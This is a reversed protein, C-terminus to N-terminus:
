YKRTQKDKGIVSSYDASAKSIASTLNQGGNINQVLESWISEVAFVDPKYYNVAILAGEAFIKVKQDGEKQSNIVQKHASPMQSVSSYADQAEFKSLFNLFEEVCARKDKNVEESLSISMMNTFYRGLTKPKNKDVQPLESVQFDLVENKGAANNRKTIQEDLEKYGVMYALRGQIFEDISNEQYQDWSYNARSNNAFSTYFDVAKYFPSETNQNFTDFKFGITNSTPDFIVGGYQAILTPLIDQNDVINPKKNTIYGTGLAIASQDFGFNTSKPKSLKKAQLVIDDWTIAAQPFGNQDLLQKNRYLQLTDVYLPIAVLDGSGTRNRVFSEEVALDVFEQKFRNLEGTTFYTDSFTTAFASYVPIDDNRVAFIDPGQNKAMDEVLSAYYNVKDYTRNDLKINAANKFKSRYLTLVKEFNNKSLASTDPLRWVIDTKATCSGVLKKDVIGGAKNQSLFYLVGALIMAILVLVIVLLVLPSIKKTPPLYGDEPIARKPPLIRDDDSYNSSYSPNRAQFSPQTQNPYNSPDFQNMSSENICVLVWLTL